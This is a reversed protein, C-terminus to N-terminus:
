RDQSTNHCGTDVAQILALLIRFSAAAAATMATATAATGAILLFVGSSIGRLQSAVRNLPNKEFHVAFLYNKDIIACQAIINIFLLALLCFM